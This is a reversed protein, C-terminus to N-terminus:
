YETGYGFLKLFGWFIMSTFYRFYELLVFLTGAWELRFTFPSFLYDTFFLTQSPIQVLSTIFEDWAATIQYYCLMVNTHAYTVELKQVLTECRKPHPPKSGRPTNKLRENYIVNASVQARIRAITWIQACVQARVQALVRLRAHARVRARIQARVQARVQVQAKLAQTCARMRVRAHVQQHFQANIRAHKSQSVFFKPLEFDIKSIKSILPWPYPGWASNGGEWM